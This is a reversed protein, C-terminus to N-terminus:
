QPPGKFEPPIHFLCGGGLPRGPLGLARYVRQYHNFRKEAKRAFPGLSVMGKRPRWRKCELDGNIYQTTYGFRHQRIKKHVNHKWFWAATVWALFENTEVLRPHNFLFDSGFLDRSCKRYNYSWTLQIYGRGYYFKNEPDGPHRYEGPCKSEKCRVEAKHRLGGSEWIVQTLFMALEIKSTIGAHVIAQLFGRYVNDTIPTGHGCARV